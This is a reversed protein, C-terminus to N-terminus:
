AGVLAAKVQMMNPAISNYSEGPRKKALLSSCSSRLTNAEYTPKARKQVYVTIM